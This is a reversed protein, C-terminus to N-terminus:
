VCERKGWSRPATLMTRSKQQSNCRDGWEEWWEKCVGCAVTKLQFGWFFRSQVVWAADFLCLYYSRPLHPSANPLTVTLCTGGGPTPPFWFFSFILAFMPSAKTLSGSVHRFIFLSKIYLQVTNNNLSLLYVLRAHWVSWTGVTQEIIKCGHHMEAAHFGKKNIWDLFWLCTSYLCPQLIM